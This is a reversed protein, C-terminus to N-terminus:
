FCWGFKGGPGPSLECNQSPESLEFVSSDAALGRRNEYNANNAYNATSEYFKVQDTPRAGGSRDEKALLGPPSNSLHGHTLEEANLGEQL